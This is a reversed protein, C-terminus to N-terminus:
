PESAVPPPAVQVMRHTGDPQTHMVAIHSAGERPILTSGSCSGIWQDDVGQHPYLTCDAPVSSEDGAVEESSIQWGASLWRQQDPKTTAVFVRGDFAVLESSPSNSVSQINGITANPPTGTCASLVVIGIFTGIIFLLLKRSIM